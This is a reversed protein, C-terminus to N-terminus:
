SAVIEFLKTRSTAGSKLRIQAKAIGFHEALLVAVAANARGDVPPATVEAAFTNPSLKTLRDARATPKVKVFINM